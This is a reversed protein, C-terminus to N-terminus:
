AQGRADRAEDRLAVHRQYSQLVASYMAAYADFVDRQNLITSHDRDGMKRGINACSMGQEICLKTVVVRALILKRIRGKGLVREPEIGFDAAVSAVLHRFMFPGQYPNPTQPPVKAPLPERQRLMPREPTRIRDVLQVRSNASYRVDFDWADSDLPEPVKARHSGEAQIVNLVRQVRDIPVSYGYTNRIGARVRDPTKLYALSRIARNIDAATMTGGLSEAQIGPASM